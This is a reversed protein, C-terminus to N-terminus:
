WSKLLLVIDLDLDDVLAPFNSLVPRRMSLVKPVGRLASLFGHTIGFHDYM